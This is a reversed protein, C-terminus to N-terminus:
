SLVLSVDCQRPSSTGLPAPVALSPQIPLVEQALAERQGPLVLEQRGAWLGLARPYWRPVVRVGPAPRLVAPERAWGQQESPPGPALRQSGSGPSGACTRRWRSMEVERNVQLRQREKGGLVLVGSVSDPMVACGKKRRGLLRVSGRPPLIHEQMGWFM